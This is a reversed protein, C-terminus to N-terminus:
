TWRRMGFGTRASIWIGDAYTSITPWSSWSSGTAATARIRGFYIDYARGGDEDVASDGGNLFDNSDVANYENLIVEASWTACPLAVLLAFVAWARAANM